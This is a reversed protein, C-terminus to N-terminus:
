QASLTGYFADGDGSDTEAIVYLLGGNLWLQYSPSDSIPNGCCTLQVQASNGVAPGSVSWTTGNAAWTGTVSGGSSESITASVAEEGNPFDGSFLEGAYTGSLSTARGAAFTATFPNTGFVQFTGSISNGNDAITGSLDEPYTNESITGSVSNGSVTMSLPGNTLQCYYAETCSLGQPLAFQALSSATIASGSQQLNAELYTTPYGPATIVFEWSGQLNPTSNTPTPNSTPTPSLNPSSSSSSVGGCGVAFTVLLIVSAYRMNFQGQAKMSKGM